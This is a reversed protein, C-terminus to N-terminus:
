GQGAAGRRLQTSSIDRRFRSAPIAEFLEGFAEPVPLETADHFIGRDDTRGAVLFRCGSDRIESLAEMMKQPSNGYYRPQLVREATDYGVVFAAGPFLRAKSSFLPANSVM